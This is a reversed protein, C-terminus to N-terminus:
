KSKFKKIKDAMAINSNAEYNETSNRIRLASHTQNNIIIKANDPCKVIIIELSKHM